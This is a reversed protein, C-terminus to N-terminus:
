GTPPVSAHGALLLVAAVILLGGMTRDFRRRPGPRRLWDAIAAGACAWLLLCLGPIVVMM